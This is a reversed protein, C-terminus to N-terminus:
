AAKLFEVALQVVEDDVIIRRHGLGNVPHLIARPNLKAIAEAESFPVEKDDPAHILQLDSSLNQLQVDTNFDETTKGSLENVITHLMKTSQDSLGIMTAFDNFIKVMSNPPSIMVVKKVSWPLYPSLTGALTTACVAGGLSHTLIMDPAGLESRVAHM